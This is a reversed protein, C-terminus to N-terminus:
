RAALAELAQQHLLGNTALASGHWPGEEGDMSTFTGGAEVVIPVIAAMDYPQLDFEGAIELAGEAVLMYSWVEGVARTRWIARSFELLQASRGAEDWGKLSNYSLSARELEDVASVQIRRDTAVDSDSLDDDLYAGQGTAGWWRRDLAPASIAGVIPVGDELLAILTAWIPVGRM